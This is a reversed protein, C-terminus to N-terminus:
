TLYLNGFVGGGIPIPVGLFTHMPPHGVPFGFSHPHAGVDALRLAAPHEIVEGLGGRGRPLEGIEAHASEEIGATVFRSLETRSEDLVGLAAYRAGTLKRASELVRDLVVDLDLEAIVGRAVDLLGQATRGKVVEDTSVAGM